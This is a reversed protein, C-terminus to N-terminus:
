RAVILRKEAVMTWLESLIMATAGWIMFDDVRWFPADHVIKGASPFDGHEAEQPNLFSLPIWHFGVTETKDVHVPFPKDLFAVFPHVLMNSPPIYCSTLQIHDASCDPAIGVEEHSERLATHWLDTDGPEYQGGPLAIQGSHVGPYISRRILLVRWDLTLNKQPDLSIKESCPKELNSEFHPLTTLISEQDPPTLMALVAAKTATDPIKIDLWSLRQATAMKLQARLGPLPLTNVLHM